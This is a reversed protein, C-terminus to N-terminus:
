YGTVAVNINQKVSGNVISITVPLVDSFTGVGPPTGNVTITCTGGAAVTGCNTAYSFIAGGSTYPGTAVTFPINGTNSLTVTQATSPRGAVTQALTVNTSSLSFGPQPNIPSAYLPIVIIPTLSYTLITLQGTDVTGGGTNNSFSVTITCTSGVALSSGCTNTQPFQYGLFFSSSTAISNIPVSQNGTNTLTIM